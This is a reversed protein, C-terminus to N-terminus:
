ELKIDFVGAMLDDIPDKLQGYIRSSGFCSDNRSDYSGHNTLNLSLKKREPPNLSINSQSSVCSSTANINNMNPNDNDGNRSLLSEIDGINSNTSNKDSQLPGRGVSNQQRLQRRELLSM